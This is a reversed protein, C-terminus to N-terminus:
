IKKLRCSWRKRGLILCSSIEATPLILLLALLRMDSMCLVANYDGWNWADWEFKMLWRLRKSSFLFDWKWDLKSIMQKQLRLCCRTRCVANQGISMYKSFHRVLIRLSTYWRKLLELFVQFPSHTEKKNM